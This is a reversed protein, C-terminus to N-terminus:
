DDKGTSLLQFLEKILPVIIKTESFTLVDHNDIIIKYSYQDYKNKLERLINRNGNHYDISNIFKLDELFYYLANQNKVGQFQFKSSNKELIKQLYKTFVFVNSLLVTKCLYQMDVFKLNNHTLSDECDYEFSKTKLENASIYIENFMIKNLKWDSGEFLPFPNLNQHFQPHITLM